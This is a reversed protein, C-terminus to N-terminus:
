KYYRYFKEKKHKYKIKAKPFCEQLYKMTAHFKAMDAIIAEVEDWAMKVLKDEDKKDIGFVDKM